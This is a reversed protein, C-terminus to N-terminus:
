WDVRVTCMLTQRTLSAGTPMQASWYVKGSWNSEMAEASTVYRGVDYM